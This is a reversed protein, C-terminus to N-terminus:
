GCSEPTDRYVKFSTNPKLHEIIVDEASVNPYIGLTRLCHEIIREDETHRLIILILDTTYKASCCLLHLLVGNNFRIHDTLFRSIWFLSNSKKIHILYEMAAWKFIDNRNEIIEKWISDPLKTGLIRCRRLAKTKVKQNFHRLLTVDEKLFGLENYAKKLTNFEEGKLHLALRVLLDRISEKQYWKIKVDLTDSERHIYKLIVQEKIKIENRTARYILNLIIRRIVLSIAIGLFGLFFSCIPLVLNETSLQTILDEM